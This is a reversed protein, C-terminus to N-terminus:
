DLDKRYYIVKETQVFGLREHMLQSSYNSLEVDSGFESFGARRAKQELYQILAKAIGHSRYEEAVWVGELFPVPQSNCGNAYDRLAYEAFGLAEDGTEAVFASRKSSKNIREIEALLAADSFKPWLRRYMSLWLEKDSARLERITVDM